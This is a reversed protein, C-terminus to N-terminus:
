NNQMSTSLSHHQSLVTKLSTLHIRCAISIPISAPFSSLSFDDNCETTKTIMDACKVADISLEEDNFQKHHHLIIISYLMMIFTNGLFDWQGYISRINEIAMNIQEVKKDLNESHVTSSSISVAYPSSNNSSKMLSDLLQHYGLPYETNNTEILTKLHSLQKKLDDGSDTSIRCNGGRFMKENSATIYSSITNINTQSTSSNPTFYLLINEYHRLLQEYSEQLISESLLVTRLLFQAEQMNPQFEKVYFKVHNLYYEAKQREGEGILFIALFIYVAILKFDSVQDFMASIKSRAKEYM